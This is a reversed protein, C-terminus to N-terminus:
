IGGSWRSVSFLAVTHSLSLSLSVSFSLSRSCSRVRLTFLLRTDHQAWAKAVLEGVPRRGQAVGKGLAGKGRLHLNGGGGQTTAHALGSNTSPVCYAVLVLGAVDFMSPIPHHNLRNSQIGFTNQGMADIKSTNPGMEDISPKNKGM